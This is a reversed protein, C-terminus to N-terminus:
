DRRREYVVANDLDARRLETELVAGDASRELAVVPIVLERDFFGLAGRRKVVAAEVAGADDHIVRAIEGIPEDDARSVVTMGMLEAEEFAVRTASRSVRPAIDAPPAEPPAYQSPPTAHTPTEIPAIEAGRFEACGAISAAAALAILVRTTM